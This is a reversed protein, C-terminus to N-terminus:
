RDRRDAPRPHHDNWPGVVLVGVRRGDPSFAGGTVFRGTGFRTLRTAGSGDTRIVYLDACEPTFGSPSINGVRILADSGDPSIDLIELINPVPDLEAIVSASNAGPNVVWIRPTRGALYVGRTQGLGNLGDGDVPELAKGTRVQESDTM